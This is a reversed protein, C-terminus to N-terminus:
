EFHEVAMAKSLSEIYPVQISTITEPLSDVLYSTLEMESMRKLSKIDMPFKHPELISYNVSSLLVAKNTGFTMLLEHNHHSFNEYISILFLATKLDIGLNTFMSDFLNQNKQSINKIIRGAQITNSVAGVASQLLQVYLQKRDAGIQSEDMTGRTFFVQCEIPIKTIYPLLVKIFLIKELYNNEVYM